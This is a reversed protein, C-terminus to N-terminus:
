FPNQDPAVVNGLKRELELLRQKLSENEEQLKKAQSAGSEYFSLQKIQLDNNKFLEKLSDINKFGSRSEIILSRLGLATITKSNLIEELDMTGKMDSCKAVHPANPNIPAVYTANKINSLDMSLEKKPFM